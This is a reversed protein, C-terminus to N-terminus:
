NTAETDDTRPILGLRRAESLHFLRQIGVKKNFSGDPTYYRDASTCVPYDEGVPYCAAVDSVQGFLTEFVEDSVGFRKVRKELEGVPCAFRVNSNALIGSNTLFGNETETALHPTGQNDFILHTAM